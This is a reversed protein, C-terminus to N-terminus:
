AANEAMSPQAAAVADLGSHRSTLSQPSQAPTRRPQAPRSRRCRRVAAPHGPHDHFPFMPSSGPPRLGHGCINFIPLDDWLNSAHQPLLAQEQRESNKRHDDCIRIRAHVHSWAAANVGRGRRNRLKGTTGSSRPNVEEDGTPQLTIDPQEIKCIELEIYGTCRCKRSIPLACM